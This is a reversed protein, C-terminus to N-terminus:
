LSYCSENYTCLNEEVCINTSESESEKYIYDVNCKFVTGLGMNNSNIAEHYWFGEKLYLKKQGGFCIM